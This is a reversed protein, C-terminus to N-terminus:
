ATRAPGSGSAASGTLWREVLRGLYGRAGLDAQARDIAARLGANGRAVSLALREATIGEQVVRLAPRSRVLWHLVPALKMVAGIAGAELDDLMTEIADYPYLRVDAANGDAKLREAVPQSTNGEQVGIVLGGLDHISRVGPSRDGNCALAQGSVLYPNCFDAVREREPTVTTGSAIVDCSGNGLEAFIANFDAGGYRVLRWRLGLEGAIARTLDVDFGAATAAEPLEFPPDPLASGVRLVGPEGLRLAV